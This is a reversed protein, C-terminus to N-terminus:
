FDRVKLRGDHECCFCFSTVKNEPPTCGELWNQFAGVGMSKTITASDKVGNKQSERIGEEGQPKEKKEKQAKQNKIDLGVGGRKKHAVRLLRDARRPAVRGPSLAAGRSGQSALRVANVNKKADGKKPGWDTAGKIKLEGTEVLM